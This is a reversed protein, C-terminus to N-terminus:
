KLRGYNEAPPVEYSHDLSKMYAVLNRADDTKVIEFGPKVYPEVSKVGPIKALEQMKAVDFGGVYRNAEGRQEVLNFGAAKLDSLVKNTDGAITVFVYNFKLADPAPTQGIPREVYLYKFPAMM